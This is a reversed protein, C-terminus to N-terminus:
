QASNVAGSLAISFGCFCLGWEQYGFDIGNIKLARLMRSARQIWTQWHKLLSSFKGGSEYINNGVAEVDRKKRTAIRMEILGRTFLCIIQIEVIKGMFKSNM